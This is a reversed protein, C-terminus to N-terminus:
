MQESHCDTQPLCFGSQPLIDLPEDLPRHIQDGSTDLLSEHFSKVDDDQIIM